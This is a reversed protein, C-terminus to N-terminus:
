VIEQESLGNQVQGSPRADDPSTRLDRQGRYLIIGVVPVWLVVLSLVIYNVPSLLGVAIVGSAWTLWRPFGPWSGAIAFAGLMAAFGFAAGSASLSALDFLAAAADPDIPGRLMAREAGAITAVFGLAILGSAFVGGGFASVALRGSGSEGRHLSSYISGSFWLLFVTALLGLYAGTMIRTSDNQYFDAVEGAPPMFDFNGIVLAATVLLVVFVVGSLPALRAERM